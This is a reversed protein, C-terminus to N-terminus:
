SRHSARSTRISPHSPSWNCCRYRPGHVRQALVLFRQLFPQVIAQRVQQVQIHLDQKVVRGRQVELHRLRLRLIRPGPRRPQALPAMRPVAPGVRRLHQHPQRDRPLPKRHTVPHKGAVRHVHGRHRPTFASRLPQRSFRHTNTPSAPLTDASFRRASARPPPRYM